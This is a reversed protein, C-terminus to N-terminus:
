PANEPATKKRFSALVGVFTGGLCLWGIGDGLVAGYLTPGKLAAPLPTTLVGDSWAGATDTVRGRADIVASVGTNAARVVPVGLEAARCRALLLHTERGGAWRGFWGDNTLQVLADARRNTGDYALQRCVSPNTAEFCIPTALRQGAIEFVVPGDGPELNFAMGPAGISLLASELADSWSIYPMVEGFPTLHLKDYREPRVAGSDIMFTSNYEADAAFRVGEPSHEVRFGDYGIAGVLMPVGLERQLALLEDAYWTAPRGGPFALGEARLAATADAGLTSGPFMTEPWVILAPADEAARRTLAVLDAFDVLRQEPTWGTKNDQPVNSQIVAVTTDTPAPAAPSVALAAALPVGILFARLTRVPGRQHLILATSGALLAGLGYVGVLSMLWAGGPLAVLPQASLFWPYGDFLLQGRLFEVGGFGLVAALWWPLARALRRILLLTITSYLSLVLVLVPLGPLTVDILWRHHFVHAPATALGFILATRTTPGTLRSALLAPLPLLLAAAPFFLPPFALIMLASQALGLRAARRVPSTTHIFARM